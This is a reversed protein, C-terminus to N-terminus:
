RREGKEPSSARRARCELLDATRWILRRGPGIPRPLQGRAHMAYIGGRTTKLLLAADDVGSTPENATSSAPLRKLLDGLAAALREVSESGASRRRDSHRRDPEDMEPVRRVLEM